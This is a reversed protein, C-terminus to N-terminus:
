INNKRLEDNKKNITCNDKLRLKFKDVWADGVPDTHTGQSAEHQYVQTWPISYKQMVKCVADFALDELPACPHPGDPTYMLSGEPSCKSFPGHNSSNASDAMFEGAMEISVGGDNLDDACWSNEVKKEFFNLMLITDNTDTAMQCSAKFKTSNSQVLTEYTRVNGDDNDYGASTHLIIMTPTICLGQKRSAVSNPLLRVSGSQMSGALQDTIDEGTEEPKCKTMNGGAPINIIDKGIPAPPVIYASNNIVLMIFAVLPPLTILTVIVPTAITLGLNRGIFSLLGFAGTVLSGLGGTLAAFGLGAAIGATPGFFLGVGIGGGIGFVAKNDQFWQKIKPWNIRKGIEGLLAGVALGIAATVPGTFAGLSALTASLGVKTGAQVALKGAIQTVVPKVFEKGLAKGALSLLPGSTDPFAKLLLGTVQGTAEWVVPQGLGYRALLSQTVPSSYVSKITSGAPLKKIQKAIYVNAQNRFYSNPDSSLSRLSDFFSSQQNMLGISNQNLVGLNVEHTSQGPVNTQSLFVQIQDPGYLYQTYKNGLIQKSISRNTLELDKNHLAILTAGNKAAEILLDEKQLVDTIVKSDESVASLIATQVVAEYNIPKALKEIIDVAASRAELEADEGPINELIPIIKETLDDILKSRTIEDSKAFGKLTELDKQEDATLVVEPVVVKAFVVKNNLKEQLNQAKAIQDKIKEQEKYIEKLREETKAVDRAANERTQKLVADRKEAKEILDSSEDKNLTTKAPMDNPTQDKFKPVKILTEYIQQLKLELQKPTLKSSIGVEELEKNFDVIKKNYVVKDKPKLNEDYIEDFLGKLHVAQDLTIQTNNGDMM